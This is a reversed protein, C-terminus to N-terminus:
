DSVIERLNLFMLLLGLDFYSTLKTLSRVLEYFHKRPYINDMTALRFEELLDFKKILEEKKDM